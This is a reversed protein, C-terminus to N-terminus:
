DRRSKNRASLYFAIGAIGLIYGIGGIIDSFRRQHEAEDLQKKLQFMERGLEERVINKLVESSINAAVPEGDLANASEKIATENLIYEAKHGDGSNIEFRFFGAASQKFVFAGSNDTKLQTLLKNNADFVKVEVNEAKRGGSFYGCGKIESGERAAFIRVSHAQAVLSIGTLILILLKKM